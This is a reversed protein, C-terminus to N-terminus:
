FFNNGVEFIAKVNSVPFVMLYGILGFGFSIGKCMWTASADNLNPAFPRVFDELVILAVGNSITSITSIKSYKNIYLCEM